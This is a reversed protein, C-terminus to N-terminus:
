MQADLVRRFRAYDPNKEDLFNMGSIGCDRLKRLLGCVLHYLSEPPFYDDTKKRIEVVFAQFINYAWQTNRDTNKSRQGQVLADLDSDSVSEVFRERKENIFPKEEQKFDQDFDILQFNGFYNPQVDNELTDMQSSTLLGIDNFVGSREIESLTQSLLLDDQTVNERKFTTSM